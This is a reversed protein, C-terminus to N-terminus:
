NPKKSKSTQKLVPSIDETKAMHQLIHSQLAYLENIAVGYENITNTIQRISKALLLVDDALSRVSRALSNFDDPSENSRGLISALFSIVSENKQKETM